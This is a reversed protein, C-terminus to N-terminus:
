LEEEKTFEILNKKALDKSLFILDALKTPDDLEYSSIPYNIITNLL